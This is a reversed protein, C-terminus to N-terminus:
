LKVILQTPLSAFDLAFDLAGVELIREDTRSLLDPDVEFPSIESILIKNGSHELLVDIEVGLM